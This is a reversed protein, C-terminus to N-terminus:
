KAVWTMGIIKMIKSKKLFFFVKEIKRRNWFPNCCITRSLSGRIPFYLFFFNHDSRFDSRHSKASRSMVLWLDAGNGLCFIWLLYIFWRYLIFLYCGSHQLTLRFNYINFISTKSIEVLSALIRALRRQRAWFRGRVARGGRRGGCEGVSYQLDM